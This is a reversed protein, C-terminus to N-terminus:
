GHNYDLMAVTSTPDSIWGKQERLASSEIKLQERKKRRHGSKTEWKQKLKPCSNLVPPKWSEHFLEELSGIVKQSHHHFRFVILKLPSQVDWNGNSFIVPHRPINQKQVGSGFCKTVEFKTAESVWTQENPYGPPHHSGLAFRRHFPPLPPRDFKLGNSSLNMVLCGRPNLNDYYTFNHYINFM